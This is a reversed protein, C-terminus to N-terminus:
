QRVQATRLIKIKKLAEVKKRMEIELLSGRQRVKVSSPDYEAKLTISGYVNTDKGLKSGTGRKGVVILGHPEPCIEIEVIGEVGFASPVLEVIISDASKLVGCSLLPLVEREARRWNEKDRGTRRGEREYIEFARKKIAASIIKRRDAANAIKAVIPKM